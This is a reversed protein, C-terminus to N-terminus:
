NDKAGQKIWNLIVQEDTPSKIFQNMSGVPSVKMYLVSQTPNITDVLNMALLSNYAKTPTLDPAINGTAHCGNIACSNTFIPVVDNSFSVPGSAVPIPVITKNTCAALFLMGLIVLAINRLKSKQM